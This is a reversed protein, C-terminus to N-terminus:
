SRIENFNLKLQNTNPFLDPNTTLYSATHKSIKCLDWKVSQILNSKRWESIYRCLNARLIGTEVSVMLTTKPSELFAKFAIQQQTLFSSGKCFNNIRDDIPSQLINSNM